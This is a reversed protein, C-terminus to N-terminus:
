WCMADPQERCRRVPPLEEAAAAGLLSSMRHRRNQPVKTENVVVRVVLVAVVVVAVAVVGVVVPAVIAVVDVVVVLVIDVIL